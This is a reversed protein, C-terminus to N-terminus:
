SYFMSFSSFQPDPSVILLDLPTMSTNFAANRSSQLKSSSSSYYCRIFVALCFKNYLLRILYAMLGILLTGYFGLSDWFGYGFGIV